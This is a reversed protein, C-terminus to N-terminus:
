WDCDNGSFAFSTGLYPYPIAPYWSVASFGMFADFGAYLVAFEKDVFPTPKVGHRVCAYGM